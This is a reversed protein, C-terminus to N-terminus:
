VEYELSRTDFKTNGVEQILIRIVFINYWVEDYVSRTDFKTNCVEQM